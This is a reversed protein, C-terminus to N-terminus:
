RAALAESVMQSRRFQACREQALQTLHASSLPHAPHPRPDRALADDHCRAPLATASPTGDANLFLTFVAGKYSNDGVAGVMADVIFDGDLDGIGAVSYGFKSTGLNGLGGETASLKQYAKLTGDRNLFLVFAANENPSGVLVDVVSDGDLDRLCGVSFGFGTNSSGVETNAITQYDRVGGDSALFLVFLTGRKNGV